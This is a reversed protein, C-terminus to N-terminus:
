SATLPEAAEIACLVGRAKTRTEEAEASPSGESRRHRRGRHRRLSRRRLRGDPHRDRLRPRTGPIWGSRRLPRATKRRLKASSKCRACNRHARSRARPSVGRAFSRRALRQASGRRDSRERHADRALLSRSGHQSRRARKRRERRTRRRQTRSRRADRAGRTAKKTAQRHRVSSRAADEEPSKGRRRTGAIPRVTVDSVSDKAGSRRALHVLTEPSAGLIQTRTGGEKQASPLDLFYMYPSPNVLRSARPVRRVSRSRTAGSRSFTRALVIQFADSAAIYEKARRVANEYHFDDISTELSSPIKTRDPIAISRLNEGSELDSRARNAATEDDAAITVTQSLADFVCVIPRCRSPASDCAPARRASVCRGEHHPSGFGVCFFGVHSRTRHARRSAGGSSPLRKRDARGRERACRRAFLARQASRLAGRRAKGGARRRLPDSRLATKYGLISYRAWRTGGVVSELLFSAGDGAARRLGAYARVPTLM